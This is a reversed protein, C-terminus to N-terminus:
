GTAAASKATGIASKAFDPENKTLRRSRCRYGRKLMSSNPIRVTLPVFRRLHSSHLQVSPCSPRAVVTASSYSNTEYLSPSHAVQDYVSIIQSPRRAHVTANGIRM